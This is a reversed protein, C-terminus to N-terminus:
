EQLRYASLNIDVDPPHTVRVKVLEAPPCPSGGQACLTTGSVSVRVRYRALDGIANGFQDRAGQDDVNRYCYVHEWNSRGNPQQPCTNGYQKPMIEDLYASAIDYAQAHIMPGSSHGINLNLVLLVGTLAIAVVIITAIAEILTFGGERARPTGGRRKRDHERAATHQQKVALRM